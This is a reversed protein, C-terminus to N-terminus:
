RPAAVVLVEWWRVSITEDPDVQRLAEAIWDEREGADRDPYARAGLAPVGLLEALERQAVPYDAFRTTLTRLGAEATWSLLDERFIRPGAPDPARGFRREGSRALALQLPAPPLDPVGRLQAAPVNFAFRGGPVLVRAVEGLARRLGPFHWLAASCVAAHFTRDALPLEGVGAEVFAAAPDAVRRRGVVLMARAADIGLVRCVPGAGSGLLREAVLGTGCALDLLAEGEAVAALSLLGDAMAPYLRGDAVLEAYVEAGVPDDWADPDGSM